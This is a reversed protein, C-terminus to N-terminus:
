RPVLVTISSAPLDVRFANTATATLAPAADITPADGDLVWRDATTLTRPAAVTVGVTLATTAKNIVVIVQRGGFDDDSAYATVRAVDSTTASVSTGGFAAGAGDYSTFVRLGAWCAALAAREDDPVLALWAGIARTPAELFWMLTWFFVLFTAGFARSANLGSIPLTFGFIESVVYGGAVVALVFPIWWTNLDTAKM